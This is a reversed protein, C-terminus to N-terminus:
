STEELTWRFHVRTYKLGTLDLLQISELGYQSYWNVDLQRIRLLLEEPNWVSFRDLFWRSDGTWSDSPCALHPGCVRLWTSGRKNTKRRYMHVGSHWNLLFLLLRFSTLISFYQIIGLLFPIHLWEERLRIPLNVRPPIWDLAMKWPSQFKRKVSKVMVLSWSKWFLFGHALQLLRKELRFSQGPLNWDQGGISFAWGMPAFMDLKWIDGHSWKQCELHLFSVRRWLLFLPKCLPARWLIHKQTLVGRGKWIGHLLYLFDGGPGLEKYNAQFCWIVGGVCSTEQRKQFRFMQEVSRAGLGRGESWWYLCSRWCQQHGWWEGGRRVLNPEYTKNGM